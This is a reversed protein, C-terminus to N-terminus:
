PPARGKYMEVKGTSGILWSGLFTGAILEYGGTINMIEKLLLLQVSSSIFGAAFLNLSIDAPEETGSTTDASITSDKKFLDSYYTFHWLLHFFGTIALGTGFEVHWKLITKIVPINWKFNIQLALFVGALATLTFATALIVNWIKRHIQKSYFNNRYFFYSLLYLLIATLGTGIVHYM